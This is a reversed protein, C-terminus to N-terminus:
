VREKRRLVRAGSGGMLGCGRLGFVVDGVFGSGVVRWRESEIRESAFNQVVEVVWIGGVV